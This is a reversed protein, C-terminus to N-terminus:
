EKLFSVTIKTGNISEISLSGKLQKVLREILLQGLTEKKNKSSTNQMGVGDDAITLAVTSDHERLIISINGVRNNPFAHKISNTILENFILGFPLAQNISVDVNDLDVLYSINNTNSFLEQLNLLLYDIYETFNIFSYEDSNYLIEHVISIAKIRAMSDIMSQKVIEDDSIDTKLELLSAIIQLNNKVRHHIEKILYEKENLSEKVKEESEQLMEFIKELENKKAKIVKNEKKKTIYLYIILSLVGLVLVIVITLITIYYNQNKLKLLNIEEEKERKQSEYQYREVKKYGDEDLIILSISHYKRLYDVSKNFDKKNKYIQSLMLYGRKLLGKDNLNESLKIGQNLYVLSSDIKNLKYNSIGINILSSAVGDILNYKIRSNLAYHNYELEKELNGLYNYLHGIKTYLDGLSIHIQSKYAINYAMNYNNLAEQYDKLVTFFDGKSRYNQSLGWNSNIDKYIQEAINFNNIAMISDKQITYLMGKLRFCDGIKEKDSIDEFIEQSRTIYELSLDIRDWTLLYIRALNYYSQAIYKKNNNKKALEITQNYYNISNVPNQAYMERSAIEYFLMVSLEPSCLYKMYYRINRFMVRSTHYYGKLALIKSVILGARSIGNVYKIKIALNMAKDCYKISESYSIYSTIDALELLIDVRSHNQATDLKNKLKTHEQNLSFLESNYLLIIIFLLFLKIRLNKINIISKNTM